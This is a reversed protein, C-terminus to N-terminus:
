FGIKKIRKLSISCLIGTLIGTPIALALLFPLLLSIYTTQYFYIVMLIQGIVHALSSFLSTIIISQKLKLLLIMVLSSLFVGSLSIFFTLSFINGRLLSGIIVRMLNIIIMEKIGFLYIGILAIVNALGVRVGFPFSTLAMSEFVNIVIAMACLLALFVFKKTKNM